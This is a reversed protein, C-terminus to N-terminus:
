SSVIIFVHIRGVLGEISQSYMQQPLPLQGNRDVRLKRKGLIKIRTRREICVVISWKRIKVMLTNM